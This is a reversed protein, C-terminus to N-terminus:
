ETVTLATVSGPNGRPPPVLGRTPPASVDWKALIEWFSCSISLIQAGFPPFTGRAGRLDALTIYMEVTLDGTTGNTQILKIYRSLNAEVANLVQGKMTQQLLPDPPLPTMSGDPTIIPWSFYPWHLHGHLNWTEIALKQIRQQTSVTQVIGESLYRQSRAIRKCSRLNWVALTEDVDVDTKRVM